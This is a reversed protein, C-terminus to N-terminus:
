ERAFIRGRCFMRSFFLFIFSSPRSLSVQFGSFMMSEAWSRVLITISV